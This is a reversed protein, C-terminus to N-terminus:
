VHFLSCARNELGRPGYVLTFGDFHRRHPIFPSGHNGTAVVRVVTIVGIVTSTSDVDTFCPPVVELYKKPVVTYAREFLCQVPVVVITGVRWFVALPSRSALLRPIPAVCYEKLILSLLRCQRFQCLLDAHRVGLRVTLM